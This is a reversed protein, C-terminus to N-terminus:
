AINTEKFEIIRKRITEDCVHVVNKMENTTVNIDHIRASILLAAGCLSAPRRGYGIWDKKM